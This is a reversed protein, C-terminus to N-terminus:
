KLKKICDKIDNYPLQIIVRHPLTWWNLKLLDSIIEDSFRIKIVEAKNGVIISYTPINNNM